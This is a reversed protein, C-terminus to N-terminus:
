GESLDGADMGFKVLRYRFSRFTIGLLKAAQTRNGGAVELAKELYRREVAAMRAEVDIGGPPFDLEGREDGAPAFTGHVREPLSAPTLVSGPELAVAREIVNQLERVNGPFRYNALLRV